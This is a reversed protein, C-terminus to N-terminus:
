YPLVGGGGGGFGMGGPVFFVKNIGNNLLLTFGNSNVMAMGIYKNPEAGFSCDYKSNTSGCAVCALNAGSTSWDICNGFTTCNNAFNTMTRDYVIENYMSEICSMTVSNDALSTNWSVGNAVFSLATMTIVLFFMIITIILIAGRHGSGPLSPVLKQPRLFTLNM